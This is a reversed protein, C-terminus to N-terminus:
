APRGLGFGGGMGRGGGGAPVRPPREPAKAFHEGKAGGEAVVIDLEPPRIPPRVAVDALKGAGDADPRTAPTGPNMLAAAQQVRAWKQVWTGEGVTSVFSQM